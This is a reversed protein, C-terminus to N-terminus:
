AGRRDGIVIDDGLIAYKLFRQKPYVLEAAIWVLMHHTLAFAPWAGYFALPSGVRFRVKYMVQHNVNEVLTCNSLKWLWGRMLSNQALSAEWWPRLSALHSLTQPRSLILRTCNKLVQWGKKSTLILPKSQDFTGDTPLLRWVKMLQIPKVM